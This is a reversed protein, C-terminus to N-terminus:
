RLELMFGNFNFGNSVTSDPNYFLSNRRYDQDVGMTKEFRGLSRYQALNQAPGTQFM